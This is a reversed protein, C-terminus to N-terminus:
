FTIGSGSNYLLDITSQSLEINFVSIEDLFGNLFGTSTWGARGIRVPATKNGMAVYTGAMSKTCSQSVSNLYIKIGNQNSSGDYTIAVYYYVGISLSNVMSCDISLANNGSSKLSVSLKGGWYAIFYEDTATSGGLKNIIVQNSTSNLKLWFSFSFPTDTTGNGFSLSSSDSITILSSSGNFSASNNVKGSVYSISTDTGNNSGYSDNSNADLKYYSVLGTTPVASTTNTSVSLSNSVVSKNYFIDVAIVTFNYSTSATLGVILKGSAPIRNKLIGDAYCEYYDITNTSSPATFNLQIASNYITGVTLTTVANPAILNAIFRVIAGSSIASAISVDIGGGNNTALYSNCYITSGQTGALPDLVFTLANPIYIDCSSRYQFSQDGLNTVNKFTVRKLKTTSIIDNARFARIGVGTVLGELDDYFTINSNNEFAGDPMTYNGTIKCKIDSGVVTFNSIAGVSIALKTALLSATSITSAVGGIYTNYTAAAPAFIYPNVLNLMRYKKHVNHLPNITIEGM